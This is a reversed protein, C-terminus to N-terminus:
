LFKKALGLVDDLVSGDRDADLFSALLDMGSSAGGGGGEGLMSGGASRKGLAGMVAAAVIPLLKELQGSDLASTRSASRAVNRSVEKSGFIHGLIANGDQSAVATDLIEPHELYQQHNGTAIAGRLAALGDPQRMNREVGRALAPALSEIGSQAEPLGVGLSAAVSQLLKPDELLSELLNM